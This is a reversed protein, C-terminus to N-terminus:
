RAKGREERLAELEALIRALLEGLHALCRQRLGGVDIRCAEFRQQV